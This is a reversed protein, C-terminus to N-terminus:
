GRNRRKFTYFRLSFLSDFLGLFSYFPVGVVPLIVIPILLAFMFKPRKKNLIGACISVGALLFYIFAAPLLMMAVINQRNAGLFLAFLILLGVKNARFSLAEKKFGGVNFMKSQLFRAFLLAIFASMFISLLQLGFACSAVISKDLNSLDTFIKIVSTDAQSQQVISELYAYQSLVFDPAFIQVLLAVIAILFFFVGSVAQWTTTVRLVMAGIICPLFLVVTNILAGFYTLSKLSVAYFVFAVPLLVSIGSKFGKRLILLSIGVVALWSTFPLVALILTCMLAYQWNSMYIQLQKNILDRAQAM